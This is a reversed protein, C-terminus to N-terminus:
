ALPVIAQFTNSKHLATPKSWKASTEAAMYGTLHPRHPLESFFVLSDARAELDKGVGIETPQLSVGKDVNPLMKNTLYDLMAEMKDAQAEIVKSEDLGSDQEPVSNEQGFSRASDLGPGAFLELCTDSDWAQQLPRLRYGPFDYVWKVNFILNNIAMLRIASVRPGEDDQGSWAM